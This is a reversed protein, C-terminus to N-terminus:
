LSLILHNLDPLPSHSRASFPACHVRRHTVVMGGVPPVVELSRGQRTYRRCKIQVDGLRDQKMVGMSYKTNRAMM